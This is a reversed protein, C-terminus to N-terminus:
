FGLGTDKTEHTGRINGLLIDGDHICDERSLHTDSAGVIAVQSDSDPIVRM